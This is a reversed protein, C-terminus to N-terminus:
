EQGVMGLVRRFVDDFVEAAVVGPSKPIEKELVSIQNGLWREISPQRVVIDSENTNNKIELLHDIEERVEGDPLYTDLLDQYLM